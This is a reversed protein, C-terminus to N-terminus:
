QRIDVRLITKPFHYVKTYKITPAIYFVKVYKGETLLGGHTISTHYGIGGTHNYIEFEINGIKIIDGPTHGAEPQISKVQVKGEVVEYQQNNYINVLKDYKHHVSRYVSLSVIFLVMGFLALAIETPVFQSTSHKFIIQKPIFIIGIGIFFLVAGVIMPIQMDPTLSNAKTFLYATNFNDM